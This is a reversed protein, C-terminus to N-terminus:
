ALVGRAVVRYHYYEPGDEDSWGQAVEIAGEVSKHLQSRMEEYGDTQIAEWIVTVTKGDDVWHESHDIVQVDGIPYMKTKDMM